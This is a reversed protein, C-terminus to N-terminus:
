EHSKRERMTKLAYRVRSQATRLKCGMAQAIDQYSLREGFRLIVAARQDPPLGDLLYRIEDRDEVQRLADRAGEAPMERDELPWSPVRKSENICMRNAILFLFSRFKGEERYAPLAKFLRLFTEQTLDEATQRDGVCWGCYRLIRPYWRRILEEAAGKDGQQIRKVLEEDGM